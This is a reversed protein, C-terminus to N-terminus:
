QIKRLIVIEPFLKELDASKIFKVINEPKDTITLSESFSVPQPEKTEDPKDELPLDIKKRSVIGIIDGQEIALDVERFNMLAISLKDPEPFGYKIFFYEEADKTMEGNENLFRINM